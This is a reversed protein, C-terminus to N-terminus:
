RIAGGVDESFRTGTTTTETRQGAGTDVYDPDLEAKYEVGNFTFTDKGGKIAESFAENPYGSIFKPNNGAIWKM